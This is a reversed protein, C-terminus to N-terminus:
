AERLFIHSGIQVTESVVEPNWSQPFDVTQGSLTEFTVNSKIGLPNWYLTAGGTTDTIDGDAVSQAIQQCQQWQTDFVNPYLGLQPDGTATISSFAWKKTIEGFYSTSNKLVRNRVVCAVAVQGAYGEGRAERWLCLALIGYDVPTM